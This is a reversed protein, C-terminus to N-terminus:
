SKHNRKGLTKIFEAEKTSLGEIKEATLIVTLIITLRFM